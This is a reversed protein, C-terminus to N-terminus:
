KMAAYYAALDAIDGDSLKGAIRVMGKHDRAGSKYDKMAKVFNAETIGVVPPNKGKGKGDAGHCAACSKAKAEGAGANGAAQAVGAMGMAFAAVAVMIWKSRM